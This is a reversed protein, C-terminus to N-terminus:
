GRIRVPMTLFKGFKEVERNIAAHELTTFKTLQKLEIVAEKKEFTRRWGGVVKGNLVLLHGLLTSIGSDKTILTPDFVPTYDKYSILYEDYNPLLHILPEKIKTSTQGKGFWYTKGNVEESVLTAKNMAVGAAIDAVKLGSWWACDQLLAPGHSTFYRKTIEVLAEERSFSKTKPVREDFLAYTHQKGKLPGSCITLSLEAHGVIFGLVMGSAKIGHKGLYEGLEDRTLYNNGALAKTFLENIRKLLKEDLNSKRYYTAMIAEVRPATLELLWRMDLPHVFHWTPRMVHTRLIKGENFLVDISESTASSVRQALAWKAGAYDQSQVAGFWRVVEEPKTLVNGVLHENQLRQQVIDTVTM